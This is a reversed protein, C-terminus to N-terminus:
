IFIFGGGWLLNRRRLIERGGVFGFFRIDKRIRGVM